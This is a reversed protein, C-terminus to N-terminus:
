GCLKADIKFNVECFGVDTKLNLERRKANFKREAERATKAAFFAKDILIKDKRFEVGCLAM